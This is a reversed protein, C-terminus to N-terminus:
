EESILNEIINKKLDHAIGWTELTMESWKELTKPFPMGDINKGNNKIALDKLWMGLHWMDPIELTNIDVREPQGFHRTVKMTEDGGKSGNCYDHSPCTGRKGM